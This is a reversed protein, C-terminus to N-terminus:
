WDGRQAVPVTNSRDSSREDALSFCLFVHLPCLEFRLAKDSSAAVDYLQASM